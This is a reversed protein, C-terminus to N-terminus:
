TAKEPAPPLWSIKIFHDTPKARGSAIWADRKEEFSPGWWDVWILHEAPKPAQAQAYRDIRSGLSRKM